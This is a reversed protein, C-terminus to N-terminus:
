KEKRKSMNQLYHKIEKLPDNPLISQAKPFANLLRGTFRKQKRLVDHIRSKIEETKDKADSVLNSSVKLKLMIFFSFIVDTLFFFGLLLGLLILVLDPLKELLHVYFPNLFYMLALGLLGFMCSNALCVRGNLNFKKESYDWWRAKFLKEMLYSTGYEMITCLLTAMVFLAIPDDLYRKLFFIMLLASSGYIPCYPGLLFGRNVVFRKQLISCSIIECLWGMMSYILFLLFYLCIQKM